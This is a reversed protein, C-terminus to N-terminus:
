DLKIARDQSEQSEQPDQKSTPALRKLTSLDMKHSLTVTGNNFNADDWGAATFRPWLLRFAKWQETTIAFQLKNGIPDKELASLIASDLEDEKKDLFIAAYAKVQAMSIAM